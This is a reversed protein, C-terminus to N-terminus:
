RLENSKFYIVSEFVDAIDYPPTFTSIYRYNNNETYLDFGASGTLAFHPMKGVSPMRVFVAVYDSDTKIRVRGGATHAHLSYVGKSM